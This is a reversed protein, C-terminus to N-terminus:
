GRKDTETDEAGDNFADRDILLFGEELNVEPVVENSFPYMRKGKETSLKVEIIDGAGFNFVGDVHGFPNGNQDRATLGILDEFYFDGEEKIEPLVSREIYLEAGKLNEALNRDNVGKLKAAVGGKVQHLIKVDFKRGQPFERGILTVPGYDSISKMDETFVKIRVAGHIGAAGFIAGICIMDTRKDSLSHNEALATM